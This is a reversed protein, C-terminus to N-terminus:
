APHGRHPRTPALEAANERAEFGMGRERSVYRLIGAMEAERESRGQFPFVTGYPVHRSSEM